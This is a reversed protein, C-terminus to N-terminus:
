VEQLSLYTVDWYTGKDAVDYFRLDDFEDTSYNRPISNTTPYLSKSFNIHVKVKIIGNPASTSTTHSTAAQVSSSLALAAVISAALLIKKMKM